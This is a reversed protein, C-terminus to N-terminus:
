SLSHMHGVAIKHIEIKYLCVRVLLLPFFLSHLISDSIGEEGGTHKRLQQSHKQTWKREKKEDNELAIQHSTRKENKRWWSIDRCIKFDKKIKRRQMHLCVSHIHQTHLLFSDAHTKYVFFSFSGSEKDDEEKEKKGTVTKRGKKKSRSFREREKQRRYMDM